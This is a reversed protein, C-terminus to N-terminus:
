YRSVRRTVQLAWGAVLALPTLLSPHTRIVIVHRTRCAAGRLTSNTQKGLWFCAMSIVSHPFGKPIAVNGRGRRSFIYTKERGEVKFM